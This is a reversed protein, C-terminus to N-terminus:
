QIILEAYQILPKTWIENKFIFFPKLSIQLLLSSFVFDVFSRNNTNNKKEYALLYIPSLPSDMVYYWFQIPQLSLLATNDDTYFSVYM